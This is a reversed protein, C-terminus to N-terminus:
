SKILEWWSFSLIEGISVKQYYTIFKIPIVNLFPSYPPLETSMFSSSDPTIPKGDRTPARRTSIM